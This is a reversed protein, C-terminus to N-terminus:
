DAGYVSVLNAQVAADADNTSYGTTMVGEFFDGQGANSNDGAAGLTIGGQKKMPNYRVSPRPGDFVTTLAGAQANGTKITWHNKGAADGKLMATVYRFRPSENAENPSVNGPWLGNELDAMVWPGPGVGRGWITSAGFYIAEVSGEGHDQSDREANGYDFCCGINFTDGAVVAYETEADDGTATGCANNNRYAVGPVIHLGYVAHGAFTATVASADAENGASAKAGGAPAKRLHNGQGSQDYIISITCASGACFMDQATSNAFGGPALPPIDLVDGNAKKVRYLPGAYSSFLARITSHAAVCPKGDAAYIDCPASEDGM